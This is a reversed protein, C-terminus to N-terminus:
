GTAAGTTNTSCSPTGTCWSCSPLAWSPGSTSPWYTSPFKGIVFHDSTPRSTKLSINERRAEMPVERPQRPGCDRRPQHPRGLGGLQAAARPRSRYVVQLPLSVTM